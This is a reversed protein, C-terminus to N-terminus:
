NSYKLGTGSIRFRSKQLYHLNIFVIFFDKKSRLAPVTTSAPQLCGIGRLDQGAELGVHLGPDVLVSVAGCPPRHRRSGVSSCFPSFNLARCSSPDALHGDAPGLQEVLVRGVSTGSRRRATVAVELGIVSLTDPCSVSAPSPGFRPVLGEETM